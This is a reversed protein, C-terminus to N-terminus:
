LLTLACSSEIFKQEIFVGNVLSRILVRLNTYVAVLRMSVLTLACLGVSHLVLSRWQSSSALPGWSLTGRQPGRGGCLANVRLSKSSGPFWSRPKKFTNPNKALSKAINDSKAPPPKPKKQKAFATPWVVRWWIAYFGSKPWVRARFHFLARAFLVWFCGFLVWFAKRSVFFM